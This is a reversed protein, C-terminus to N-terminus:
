AHAQFDLFANLLVPCCYKQPEGHCFDPAKRPYGAQPVEFFTVPTLLDNESEVLELPEAQQGRL